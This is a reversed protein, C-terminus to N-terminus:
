NRFLLVEKYYYFGNAKDIMAVLKCVNAKDMIHLPFFSTLSENFLVNKIKENLTKYKKEFETKNNDELDDELMLNLAESDFYMRLRYPLKGCEKLLDIKTLVNIHPTELNIQTILSMMSASIYQHTEYCCLSDFLSITTLSFTIENNNQLGMVIKKINEDNMYLEIQGPFDFIFYQDLCLEKNENERNISKTKLKKLLWSLNEYIFGM